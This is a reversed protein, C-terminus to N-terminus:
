ALGTEDAKEAGRLVLFFFLFLSKRSKLKNFEKLSACQDAYTLSKLIQASDLMFSDELALGDVQELCVIFFENDVFQWM